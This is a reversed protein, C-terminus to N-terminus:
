RGVKGRCEGTEGDMTELHMLATRVTAVTAAADANIWVRGNLGVAMEFALTEGLAVLAPLPPRSLLRRALGTKVSMMTGGKLQGFGLARGGADVCSIEPDLDRHAVIVRAYVLDGEKLTPRNRKTAGEFSLASLTARAPARIDVFFHEGAQLSSFFFASFPPFPFPFTPLPPPDSTVVNMVSPAHSLVSLPLYHHKQTVKDLIIGIVLDDTQPIYRKQSGEVWLKGSPEARVTGARTSRLVGNEPHLGTGLVLTGSQPIAAVVDGPLISTDVRSTDM